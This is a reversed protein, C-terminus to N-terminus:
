ANYNMELFCFFHEGALWFIGFWGLLNLLLVQFSEFVYTFQSLCTNFGSFTSLTSEIKWIQYAIILMLTHWFSLVYTMMYIVTIILVQLKVYPYFHSKCRNILRAMRTCHSYASYGCGSISLFVWWSWFEFSNQISLNM